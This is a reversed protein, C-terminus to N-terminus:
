FRFSINLYFQRGYLYFYKPPYKTIELPDYRYQEFGGFAFDQIGILNSVSFNLSIYYKYDIRWSKGINADLTYNSPMREQNIIENGEEVGPAYNQVAESTRRDPNIDIYINDYYNINVGAFIYSSSFYKVGASMATQPFGGVLYNKLYVERNSLVEASNDVSITATPRSDYYYKGTALVGFLTFNQSVKGEIGLEVGYHVKDMGVMQYNVFSRYVDHYFSRSYIQDIFKAYYATARIKLYPSRYMYSVDGAMIKENSIGNVVEDRTRVSIYASRFYPARTLYAANANLLHRGTIKYIAGGKVGYNFFNQKESDGYSNDPFKGNKMHGTRWFQDFSANAAFFFDIKGYSFDTKAFLTYNNINGTYDYGFKDGVKVIQNPNNLDNQIQPSNEPFDREAFKDINLYFDGGMLDEIEKYQNTKYWSIDLGSAFIFHENIEKKYNVNLGINNKENVRNEIIYSSLNGTVSNGQIGDVNDLTFLNKRNIFYMYDFDLQRFAPDNQWLELRDEPYLGNFEQDYSPLNRYYDPRPDPTDYWDLATSNAHGFSYYLSSTVQTKSDITWYHSLSLVPQHYNGIRSNRKEGNQYGWYPNYFNSGSLDYAEQVSIGNRGRKNPAGFGILGISHQKNIKKEVALFYSWADYFTGEVYGEEAWRRSGSATIAWGNEMMGTAYLFMLRNRYSRNTMSYTIKKQKQYSSARTIMNTVGGIGGFYLDSASIGSEIEKNRTADNLGGWVSGYPRGTERDNVPFGNILVSTNESDFGRIKFRTQGFTFGATSIFIDDSSQLIGGIDQDADDDDLNEPLVNIQPIVLNSPDEMLTDAEQGFALVSIALLFLTVINKM